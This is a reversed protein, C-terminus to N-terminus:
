VECGFSGAAASDRRYTAIIKAKRRIESFGALGPRDLVWPCQPYFALVGTIAYYLEQSRRAYCRRNDSFWEERVDGRM